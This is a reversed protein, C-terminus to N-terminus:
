RRSKPDTSGSIKTFRPWSSSCPSTRRGLSGGGGKPGGRTAIGPCCSEPTCNSPRGIPRRSGAGEPTAAADQFAEVDVWLRREPCLFIQEGESRLYYSDAGTGPSLIARAAHLAKRLNNSAALKGLNPWLLDMAQERHLRHGRALALLKVLSATKRLRWAGAGVTRPGVAVRFGGLLWIRVMEPGDGGPAGFRAASALGARPCM